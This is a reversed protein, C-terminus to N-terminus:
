FEGLYRGPVLLVPHVGSEINQKCREMAEKGDTATVHYSINKLPFDGSRGTQADGAHGPNNPITIEPHRQQLKAGVLHQEVVGGSKGKAKDLISAM